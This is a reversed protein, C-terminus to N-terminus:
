NGKTKLTKYISMVQKAINHPEHRQGIYEKASKGLRLRYDDDKILKELGKYLGITDEPYFILGSINNIITESLKLDPLTAVLPKGAISAEFATRGVGKLMKSFLCVVIDIAGYLTSLDEIYGPLLIKDELGKNKVFDVVEPGEGAERSKDGVLLFKLNPVRNLFDEAIRLFEWIGKSTHISGIQAIIIEYELCNWSMRMKKIKDFTTAKEFSIPNYVISIMPHLKKPFSQKTERDIAIIQFNNLHVLLGFFFKEIPREAIAARAHMVVPIRLIRCIYIYPLLTSENLHVLDIKWKLKLSLVRFFALFIKFLHWSYLILGYQKSCYTTM